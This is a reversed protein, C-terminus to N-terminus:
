FAQMVTVASSFDRPNLTYIITKPLAKKLELASLLESLPRAFPADNIADFGTDAGLGQFAKENLNRLAGIHYQQILGHKAYMEGLSALLFSEYKVIEETTLIEKRLAKKFIVDVEEPSASSFRLTDM